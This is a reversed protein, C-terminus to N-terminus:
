SVKVKTALLVVFNTGAKGFPAGHHLDERALSRRSIRNLFSCVCKRAVRGDALIISKNRDDLRLDKHISSMIECSSLFPSLLHNGGAVTSKTKLTDEEFSRQQLGVHDQFTSVALGFVGWCGVSCCGYCGKLSRHRDSNGSDREKGATLRLLVGSNVEIGQVLRSKSITWPRESERESAGKLLADKFGPFAFLFVDFGRLVHEKETSTGVAISVKALVSSVSGLCARSLLAGVHLVIGVLCIKLHQQKM